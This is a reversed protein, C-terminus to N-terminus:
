ASRGIRDILGRISAAVAAPEACTDLHHGRLRATPWGWDAARALDEQYPPSLQLYGAPRTWWQPPLPVAGDYFSRKVRPIESEILRRQTPDPVLQAMLEAPWWENWPAMLGDVTPVADLLEVLQRSPTFADGAGPVVADVFVITTVNAADAIAPLFAGAGSHGILLDAGAAADTARRRFNDPSGIAVRLDPVDAVVDLQGLEAVLPIVTSPGVLPSHVIAARVVGSRVVGGDDRQRSGSM